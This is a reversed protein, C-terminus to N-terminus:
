IMKWMLYICWFFWGTGLFYFLYVWGAPEAFKHCLDTREKCKECEKFCQYDGKDNIRIDWKLPWKHGITFWCFFKKM